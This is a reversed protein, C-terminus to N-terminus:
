IDEENLFINLKTKSTGKLTTSLVRRSETVFSVPMLHSVNKKQITSVISLTFEFGCEPSKVVLVQIQHEKFWDAM